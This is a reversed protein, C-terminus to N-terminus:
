VRRKPSLPHMTQVVVIALLGTFTPKLLPQVESMCDAELAGVDHRKPADQWTHSRGAVVVHPENFRVIKQRANRRRERFHERAVDHAPPDCGELLVIRPNERFPEAVELIAGLLRRPVGREAQAKHKLVRAAGVVLGAADCGELPLAFDEPTQEVRDLGGAAAWAEGAM